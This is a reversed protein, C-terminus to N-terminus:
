NHVSDLFEPCLIAQGKELECMERAFCGFVDGNLFRPITKWGIKGGDDSFQFSFKLFGYVFDVFGTVWSIRNM